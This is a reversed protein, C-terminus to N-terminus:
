AGAVAILRDVMDAGWRYINSAAVVARMAEMRRRREGEPMEIAEKITGAFRGTGYPNILLADKLEAAAGAFRSLILVGDGDVRAAVYEKAVLNMGDHLSSVICFDALRRLANMTLPTLQRRLSVVPAWSGNGYKRNIEEVLEGTRRDVDRYTELRTRSPMGAQIFVM